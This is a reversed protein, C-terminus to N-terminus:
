RDAEEGLIARAVAVAHNDVAHVGALRRNVHGEARERLWAALPAAIPHLAALLQALNPAVLNSDVFRLFAVIEGKGGERTAARDLEDLRTAARRLLEAASM